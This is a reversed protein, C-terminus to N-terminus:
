QDGDLVDFFACLEFLLVRIWVDIGKGSEAEFINELFVFLGLRSFVVFVGVLVLRQVSVLEAVDLRLVLLIPRKGDPIDNIVGCEFLHHVMLITQAGILIYIPEKVLVYAGQDIDEFSGVAM